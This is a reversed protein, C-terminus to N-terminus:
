MGIVHELVLLLFWPQQRKVPAKQPMIQKCKATSGSTRFLESEVLKKKILLSTSMYVYSSTGRTHAINVMTSM